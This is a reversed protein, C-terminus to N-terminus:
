KMCAWMISIVGVHFLMDAIYANALHGSNLLDIFSVGERMFLNTQYVSEM